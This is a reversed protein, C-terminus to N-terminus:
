NTIVIGNGCNSFARVTSDPEARWANLKLKATFTMDNNKLFKPITFSTNMNMLVPLCMLLIPIIQRISFERDNFILM